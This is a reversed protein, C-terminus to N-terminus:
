WKHRPTGLPRKREPKGLLIEYANRKEEIHTAHGALIIRKSKIMRINESYFNHLAKHLQRSKVYSGFIYAYSPHGLTQVSHTETVGLHLHMRTVAKLLHCEGTESSM